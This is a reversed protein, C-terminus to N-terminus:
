LSALLRRLHDNFQPLRKYRHITHREVGLLAAASVATHGAALLRAAREQRPTLDPSPLIAPPAPQTQKACISTRPPTSSQPVNTPNAPTAPPPTRHTRNAGALPTSSQPVNQLAPPRPPAPRKLPALLDLEAQLQAPTLPPVNARLWQSSLGIANLHATLNTRLAAFRGSAPPITSM